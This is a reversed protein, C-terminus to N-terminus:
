SNKLEQNSKLVAIMRQEKPELSSIHLGACASQQALSDAITVLTPANKAALTIQVDHRKLHLSELSSDDKCLHKIKKLLAVPQGAKKQRSEIKSLALQIKRQDNFPKTHTDYSHLEKHQAILQTHMMYEPLYLFIMILISLTCMLSSAVIWRRIAHYKARTVTQPFFPKM